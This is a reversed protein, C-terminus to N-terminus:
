SGTDMARDIFLTGGSVIRDGAALGEIVEVLDGNSRGVHIHRQLITQDDRVVFVRAQDGEYVIASKPVAPSDTQDGARIAVSAFMMPKLLGDSNDVEARVPLRRTAPDVAPAVWSVKAAFTHEPYALVRVEVPQGVQVLSAQAERVNAILWVTALNGISYVPASAGAAIYQGLGVQRQTVTGAIPALVMTEASKRQQAAGAELADIEADTKGLIRLRNRAAFRTNQAAALDAQAQLWDKLAGGKALYLAHQRAENETALTLQARANAVDSQGQAFEIAEVAMLPAGQRVVDGPKAILKTVRGTFPSFVPTTTDDDFAINGDTVQETQFTSSAVTAVKLSAWQARTPRFGEAVNQVAAAPARFLFQTALWSIGAAGLLMAVLAFLIVVQTRRPLSSSGTILVEMRRSM